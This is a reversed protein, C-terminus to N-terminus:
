HGRVHKQVTPLIYTKVYRNSTGLYWLCAFLTFVFVGLLIQLLLGVASGSPLLPTVLRVAILMLVGIVFGSVSEKFWRALPLEGTVAITQVVCVAVEAALTGFGAGLSGLRPILCANAVINVLAGVIVSAVYARDKSTPILWQTRIVNAWAMFPMELVIVSMLLSCAEFGPGFFVPAFEPAVAIIGFTFASSLLLVFWMSPAMYEIAEEKKGTAYLNASHPLMVTGLATILTFPMSAVKLSNEFYGAETMGAIQGLMVKDLVTYLSVAIVPVFLVLDPKLNAVVEKVTPKYFRVERFVFPWLVAVSVFLSVSMLVLYAILANDGRVLVFTLVFTVLKVIFNRTVTVKFQELGFFLWNVDLAASAVYPVWILAPIADGSWLLAYGIYVCVSIVAFVAQLAWISWFTKTLEEESDRATAVARNGYNNVGLMAFMVFYYAISYTYSSTGLGNAGLVRSLYPATVLPLALVLVQYAVNYLFNKKVSMGGATLYVFTEESSSNKDQM